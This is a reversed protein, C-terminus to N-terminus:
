RTAEIHTTVPGEFDARHHVLDYRVAKADVVAGCGDLHFPPEIRVSQRDYVAIGGTIFCGDSTRLETGGQLQGHTGDADGNIRQTRVQAGGQLTAEVDKAVFDGQNYRALPTTGRLTQHDGRWAEITVGRLELGGAPAQAEPAARACAALLVVVAPRVVSL